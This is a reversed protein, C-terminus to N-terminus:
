KQKKVSEGYITTWDDKMSVPIWGYTKCAARLKEAEAVNGYERKLDDPILVFARGGKGFAAYNLMSADTMANGFAIVPRIGIENIINEVKM